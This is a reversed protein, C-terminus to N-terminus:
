QGSLPFTRDRGPILEFPTQNRFRSIGNVFVEISTVNLTGGKTLALTLTLSPIDSTLLMRIAPIPDSNRKEKPLLLESDNVEFKKFEIPQNSILVRSDTLKIKHVGLTTRIHNTGVNNEALIMEIRLSTVEETQEPFIPNVGLKLSETKYLTVIEKRIQPDDLMASHGYKPGLKIPTRVETGPGLYKIAEGPRVHGKDGRVYEGATASLLPSTGDGWQYDSDLAIFPDRHASYNFVSLPINVVKIVASWFRSFNSKTIQNLNPMQMDMRNDIQCDKNEGNACDPWYFGGVLYQKVGPDQGNLFDARWIQSREFLRPNADRYFEAMLKWSNKDWIVGRFDETEVLGYQKMFEQGYQKMFEETPLQQFVAPFNKALKRLNEMKLLSLNELRQCKAGKCVTSKHDRPLGKVTITGDKDLVRGAGFNYGWLLARVTKPTGLWPTGVAILAAVKKSGKRVIYDRSVLGGLSHALIIVKDHGSKDLARDIAEDLLDSSEKGAGKRWDYPAYHIRSPFVAAAWSLFNAYIPSPDWIPGKVATLPMTAKVSNGALDNGFEDLAALMLRNGKLTPRGVWYLEDEIKKKLSLNTLRLESGATGPVFVIPVLASTLRAQLLGPAKSLPSPQAEASGQGKTPPLQAFLLASCLLIRIVMVPSRRHFHSM